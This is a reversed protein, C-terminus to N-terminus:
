AEHTFGMAISVAEINTGCKPCFHVRQHNAARQLSVLRGTKRRASQAGAGKRAAVTERFKEHQEPTWKQRKKARFNDGAAKAARRGKATHMRFKHVKLGQETKGVYNCGPHDCKNDVEAM